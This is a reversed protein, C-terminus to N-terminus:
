AAARTLPSPAGVTADATPYLLELDTIQAYVTVQLATATTTEVAMLPAAVWVDLAGVCGSQYGDVSYYPDPSHYPCEMVETIPANASVLMHPLGSSSYINLDSRSGGLHVAPEWSCLLAGYLMKNGNTRVSLRVGHRAASFNTIKNQIFSFGSGGIFADPFLVSHLLTGSSASTPWTFSAVPYERLNIAPAPTVTPATDLGVHAPPPGTRLPQTVDTSTDAFATLQHQTAPTSDPNQQEATRL